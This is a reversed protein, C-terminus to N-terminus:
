KPEPTVFEVMSDHVWGSTENKYWRMPIGTKRMEPSLLVQLWEGRRAVMPMLTGKVALVIVENGTSPGSHINAHSVPIRVQALVKADAAAQVAQGQGGRQPQGQAAAQGPAIGPLLLAIAAASSITRVPIPKM